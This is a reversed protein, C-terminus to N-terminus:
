SSADLAFTRDTAPIGGEGHTRETLSGSGDGRLLLVSSSRTAYGDAVIRIPSLVREWDLGVGTTPLQEEPAREADALVGLLAETSTDGRELTAALLRKGREVKFWPTDLLHNSLGFVGPQLAQVPANGHSDGDRNSYYFLAERDGVLLNFGNYPDDATSLKRLYRQPPDDGQLYDVVLAGRSPADARREEPARYNTLSAFRGDRTVGMWTGGGRLDRGALLSPADDWYAAPATPRDLFEDRNALLVLRYEPDTRYAFLILCM